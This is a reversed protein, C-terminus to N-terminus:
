KEMVNLQRVNLKVDKKKNKIHFKRLEGGNRTRYYAYCGMVYKIEEWNANISVPVAM